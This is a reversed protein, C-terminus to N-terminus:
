ETEGSQLGRCYATLVKNSAQRTIDQYSACISKNKITLAPLEEFISSIGFVEVLPDKQANWVTNQVLIKLPFKGLWM